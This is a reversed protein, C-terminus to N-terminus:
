GDVEKQIFDSSKLSSGVGQPQLRLSKGNYLCLGRFWNHLGLPFSATSSLELLFLLPHPVIM